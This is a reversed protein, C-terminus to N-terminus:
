FIDRFKHKKKYVIFGQKFGRSRRGYYKMFILELFIDHSFYSGKELRKGTVYKSHHLCYLSNQGAKIQMLKTSAHSVKQLYQAHM